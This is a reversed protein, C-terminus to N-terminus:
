SALIDIIKWFWSDTQDMYPNPSGCYIDYPDCDLGYNSDISNDIFDQLVEIDDSYFCHNNINIFGDDCTLAISLLVFLICYSIKM